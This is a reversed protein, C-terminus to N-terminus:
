KMNYESTVEILYRGDPQYTITLKLTKSSGSDYENDWELEVRRKAQHHVRFPPSGYWIPNLSSGGSCVSLHLYWPCKFFCSLVNSLFLPVIGPASRALIFHEKEILCAAVLSASLRAADYAEKASVSNNADVFLDERYNDIFHTEVNGNEFAWHNALKLLFYVNTPLGAVQQFHYQCNM